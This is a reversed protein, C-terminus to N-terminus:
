SGHQGVGVCCHRGVMDDPFADWMKTKGKLWEERQRYILHLNTHVYVMSEARSQELRSKKLSYLNGYTSWNRECCSSSTVQSLIRMALEQLPPCSAGHTAWWAHPKKAGRDKLVDYSSFRENATSFDIFGAEVEDFSARDQYIQRFAEKRGKSLEHDMHSLFRRSTGGSLWENNYYKPNLSHALYHLPTCNKNWRSILIDQITTFFIEAPTGYELSENQLIITRMSEIMSDWGEYVEGLIPKDTDAFQLLSIIPEMIKITLDVREWWADDLVTDKVKKSSAQDTKRWFSWFESIVMSGLAAKVERLRKLMIFSSAFWTDAVKL